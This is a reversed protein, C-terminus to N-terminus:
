PELALVVLACLHADKCHNNDKQIVIHTIYSISDFNENPAMSGTVFGPAMMVSYASEVTQKCCHHSQIDLVIIDHPASHNGETHTNTHTKSLQFVTNFLYGRQATMVSYSLSEWTPLAPILHSCPCTPPSGRFCGWDWRSHLSAEGPCMLCGEWSCHFTLPFVLSLPSKQESSPTSSLHIVIHLNSNSCIKPCRHDSLLLPRFTQNTLFFISPEMSCVLGQVLM